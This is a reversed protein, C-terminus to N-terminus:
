YFINIEMMSIFLNRNNLIKDILKNQEKDLFKNLNDLVNENDDSKFDNNLIERIVEIDQIEGLDDQFQKYNDIDYEAINIENLIELKYRLKKLDKRLQHFSSKDDRNLLDFESILTEKENKIETFLSDLSIKKRSNKFFKKVAKKIKKDVNKRNFNDIFKNTKKFSKKQAQQYFKEFSNFDFNVINEQNKRLFNKAIQIDRTGGLKKRSKKVMKKLKKNESTACIISLTELVANMRRASVRADHISDESRDGHKLKKFEQIYAKRKIKSISKLTDVAAATM